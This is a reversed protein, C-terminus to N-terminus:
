AVKVDPEAFGKLWAVVRAIGAAAAWNRLRAAWGPSLHELAAAGEAKFWAAVVVACLLWMLLHYRLWVAYFLGLPFLALPCLAVLRLMPEYRRSAAVRAVLALAALHLPAFMWLESPGSLLRV